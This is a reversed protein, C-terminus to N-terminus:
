NGTSLAGCGAFLQCDPLNSVQEVIGVNDCILLSFWFFPRSDSESLSSALTTSSPNCISRTVVRKFAGCAKDPVEATQGLELVASVASGQSVSPVRPHALLVGAVRDITPVLNYVCFSSQYQKSCCVKIIRVLTPSLTNLRVLGEQIATSTTGAGATFFFSLFLQEHNPVYVCALRPSHFCM